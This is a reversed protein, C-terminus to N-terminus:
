SGPGTGADTQSASGRSASRVPTPRSNDRVTPRARNPAARWRAGPWAASGYGAVCTTWGVRHAGQFEERHVVGLGISDRDLRKREGAHGVAQGVEGGQGVLPVLAPGRRGAPLDPREDVGVMGAGHPRPACLASRTTIPLGRQIASPAPGAQAACGGARCAPGTPDGAPPTRNSATRGYPRQPQRGGRGPSTAMRGGPARRRAVAHLGPRVSGLANDASPGVTSMSQRVGARRCADAFARSSDQPGDGCWLVDPSVADFHRHVLDRAAKRRGQRTPSRRKKPERGYWGQEAMTEAVTHVSM